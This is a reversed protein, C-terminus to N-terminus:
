LSRRSTGWLKRDKTGMSHQPTHPSTTEEVRSSKRKSGRLSKLSLPKEWDFLEGMNEKKKGKQSITGLVWGLWKFKSKKIDGGTKAHGKM